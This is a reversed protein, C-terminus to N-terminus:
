YSKKFHKNKLSLACTLLPPDSLSPSLPGSAPDTSVASLGIHSEFERVSFRANMNRM